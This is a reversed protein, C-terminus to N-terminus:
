YLWWDCERQITNSARSPINAMGNRSEIYGILSVSDYGKDALVMSGDLSVASLVSEAFTIDHNQGASLMIHLPNGLADV